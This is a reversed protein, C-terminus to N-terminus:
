DPKFGGPSTGGGRFSDRKGFVYGLGIELRPGPAKLFIHRRPGDCDIYLNTVDRGRGPGKAYMYALYRYTGGATVFLKRGIQIMVGLGGGVGLGLYNAGYRVDRREAGRNVHLWVLDFGFRIYPKIAGRTLLYGKGIMGLTHSVARSSTEQFTAQSRTQSYSISWLGNKRMRGVSIAVGWLPDLKPIFFAKESTGLVLKGNLDGMLDDRLVSFSLFYRDDRNPDWIRPPLQAAARGATVLLLLIVTPPFIKKM